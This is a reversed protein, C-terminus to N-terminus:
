TRAVLSSSPGLFFSVGGLNTGRIKQQGYPWGVNVGREALPAALAIPLLSSLITLLTTTLM